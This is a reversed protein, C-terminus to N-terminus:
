KIPFWHQTSISSWDLALYFRIPNSYEAINLPWSRVFPPRESHARYTPAALSRTRAERARGIPATPRADSDEARALQPRDRSKRGREAGCVDWTELNRGHRIILSTLANAKISLARRHFAPVRADDRRTKLFRFPAARRRAVFSAWGLGGSEVALGASSACRRLLTLTCVHRGCRYTHLAAIRRAISRM